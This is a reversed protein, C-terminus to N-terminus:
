NAKIFRRILSRQQEKLQLTYTGAPLSTTNLKLRSGETVGSVNVQKGSADYITATIQQTAILSCEVILENSVPNPYLRVPADAQWDDIGTCVVISIVETSSAACGNGDTYTYRIIRPGVGGTSPDLQSNSIGTGSYVGGAPSGGGLTIPSGNSCTSDINGGLTVTPLPNVTVTKSATDYCTQNNRVVVTYTGGTTTKYQATANTTPNNDLKWEFYNVTSDTQATLTVTDGQCAAMPQQALTVSPSSLVNVAMVNSTAYCGNPSNFVVAYNGSSAVVLSTDTAQPLNTNNVQWQYTYGNNRNAKLTVRNGECFTLGGTASLLFNGAAGTVTYQITDYFTTNAADTVAVIYKSNQTLTASPNACNNCSLTNGTAQWSYTYPAQGGVTTPSLNVVSGTCVTQDTGLYANLPLAGCQGGYPIFPNAATQLSDIETDADGSNKLRIYYKLDANDADVQVTFLGLNVTVVIRMKYQGTADCPTGNIKLCGSEQNAYTNDAKNSAWCLGEPLNEVSDIRLTTVTYSSGNFVVQNFNKFQIVTTSPQGNVFPALSDPPPSLWPLSLNSAVCQYTGSNGCYQASAFSVFAALVALLLYKIKMHLNLGFLYM